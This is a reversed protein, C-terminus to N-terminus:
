QLYSPLLLVFRINGKERELIGFYKKLSIEEQRQKLCQNNSCESALTKHFFFSNIYDWSILKWIFWNEERPLDESANALLPEILFTNIFIKWFECSFVEKLAGKKIFNCAMGSYTSFKHLNADGLSRPLFVDM